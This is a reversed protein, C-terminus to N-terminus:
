YEYILGQTLCSCFMFTCYIVYLTLLVEFINLAPFVLNSEDAEDIIYFTRLFFEIFTKLVIM